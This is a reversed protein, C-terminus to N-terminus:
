RAIRWTAKERGIEVRAHQEDGVEPPRAARLGLVRRAHHVLRVHALGYYVLYWIVSVTSAVEGHDRVDSTASTSAVEWVPVTVSVSYGM